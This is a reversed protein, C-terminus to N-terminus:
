QIRFETKRMSNWPIHRLAEAAECRQVARLLHTFIVL